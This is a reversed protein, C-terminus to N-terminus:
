VVSYRLPVLIAIDLHWKQVDSDSLAEKGIESDKANM